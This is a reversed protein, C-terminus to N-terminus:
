RRLGGHAATGAQHPGARRPHGAIRGRHGGEKRGSLWVLGVKERIEASRLRYLANQHHRELAQGELPPPEAAAAEGDPPLAEDREIEDPEWTGPTSMRVGLIEAG